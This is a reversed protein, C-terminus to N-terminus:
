SVVELFWHDFIPYDSMELIDCLLM